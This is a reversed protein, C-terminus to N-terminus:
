NSEISERYFKATASEGNDDETRSTLITCETQKVMKEEFKTQRFNILDAKVIARLISAAPDPINSLKLYM